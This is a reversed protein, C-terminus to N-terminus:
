PKKEAKEKLESALLEEYYVVLEADQKRIKAVFAAARPGPAQLAFRLIANRVVNAQHTKKDLLGLVRDTVEWRKWKRFEHIAFDAMDGQDLFIEMFEIQKAPPFSASKAEGFMQTAKYISYRQLFPATPDSAIAKMTRGYEKPKLTLMGFVFECRRFEEWLEFLKDADAPQGCSALLLAYESGRSRVLDPNGLWALIKKASFDRAAERRVAHTARSLELHADTAIMESPDELHNLFYRLADVPKKPDLKMIGRIYAVGREDAQKISFFDLKGRYVDAFAVAMLPKKPDPNPLNRPYVIAKRDKLLPHALLVDQVILDTQGPDRADDKKRANELRGYVVAKVNDGLVQRITLQDVSEAHSNNVYGFIVTVAMFRLLGRM